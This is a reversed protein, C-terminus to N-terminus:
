HFGVRHTWAAWDAPLHFYVAGLAVGAVLSGAVLGQRLPGYVAAARQRRTGFDALTLRTARLTHALVHVAMAAFWAVFSLKHLTIMGHADPGERWALVGTTLVAVTTVVVVPGLARLLPVPPGAERYRADHLYYRAFRWSTAGLKLAVPPILALGIAVHWSLHSGIGVITVGEAFLMILLVLGTAGILRANAEVGRDRRLRAKGRGPSAGARSPGQLVPSPGRRAPPVPGSMRGADRQNTM